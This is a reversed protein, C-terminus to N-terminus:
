INNLNLYNYNNHFNLYIKLTEKYNSKIGDIFPKGAMYKEAEVKLDDISSFIKKNLYNKLNRFSLEVANFPSYYPTNFVVNINNNYYLEKLRRTKHSSFNDLVLVCPFLNKSNIESILKETFKFFRDENTSEYNIEYYVISDENVAMLLNLRQRTGLDGFIQDDKKRWCYYNNNKNQLFSEDCYIIHFKLKICRSIVKIFAFSILINKMELIKNTKPKTKLYKFGMKKTLCNHITSKSARKGTIENYKISLKRLTFNANNKCNKIENLLFTKLEDNSNKKQFYNNIENATSKDVFIIESSKSIMKDFEYKEIQKKIISIEKDKLKILNNNNIKFLYEEAMNNDYIFKSKENFKTILPNKFNLSQIFKKKKRMNYSFRKKGNFHINNSNLEIENNYEDCDENNVNINKHLNNKDM